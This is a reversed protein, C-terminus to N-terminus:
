QLSTVLTRPLPSLRWANASSRSESLGEMPSDVDAGGEEQAWRVMAERLEAPAGTHPMLMAHVSEGPRDCTVTGMATLRQGHLAGSLRRTGHEHHEVLDMTFAEASVASGDLSVRPDPGVSYQLLAIM